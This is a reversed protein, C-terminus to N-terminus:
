IKIPIKVKPPTNGTIPELDTKLNKGVKEMMTLLTLIAMMRVLM